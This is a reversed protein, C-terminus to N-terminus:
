SQVIHNRLRLSKTVMFNNTDIQQARNNDNNEVKIIVLSLPATLSVGLTRPTPKVIQLIQNAVDEIDENSVSSPIRQKIDIGIITEVAFHSMSNKSTSDQQTFLVYVDNTISGEVKGDFVPVPGGNVTLNGNLATYYARRLQTGSDMM